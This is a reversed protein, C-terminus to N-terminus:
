EDTRLDASAPDDAIPRGADVALFRDRDEADRALRRRRRNGKTPSRSTRTTMRTATTAPEPPPLEGPLAAVDRTRVKRTAWGSFDSGAGIEPSDTTPVRCPANIM